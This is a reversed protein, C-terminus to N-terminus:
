GHAKEKQQRRIARMTTYEFIATDPNPMKHGDRMLARMAAIQRVSIEKTGYRVARRRMTMCIDYHDGQYHKRAIGIMAAMQHLESEDPSILHCMRMQGYPIYADDVYVM